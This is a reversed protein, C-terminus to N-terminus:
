DLHPKVNILVSGDAEKPPVPLLIYSALRDQMIGFPVM